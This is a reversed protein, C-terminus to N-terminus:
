KEEAISPQLLIEDALKQEEDKNLSVNMYETSYGEKSARIIYKEHRPVSWVYRYNQSDRVVERVIPESLVVSDLDMLEVKADNLYVMTNADRVYAGILVKSETSSKCSFLTILLGIVAVGLIKRM